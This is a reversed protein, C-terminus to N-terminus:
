GILLKALFSPALLASPPRLEIMVAFLTQAFERDRQGRRVIRDLLAPWRIMDRFLRFLAHNRGIERKLIEAYGALQVKSFNGIELAATAYQAALEGSLMATAIGEGNLPNVLGAAEGAVLINDAVPTVTRMRTRLPYGKPPGVMRAPGLRDRAYRNNKIFDQLAQKLKIGRQRSRNVFTGLGVNARSGTMPFIWAYGPALAADYHMELLEDGGNVNEFYARLAVLDPEGKVLGLRKTFNAHAGDATILLNCELQIDPNRSNRSGTLRITGSRPRTMRTLNVGELLETGATVAQSAIANDLQLRPIVRGYCIDTENPRFHLAEGSPASFLLEKPANFDNKELWEGLGMRELRTLISTVVGDGCVKDRPFTQKDVLGVRIGTRALHYAATSGAPGAGVVVVDFKKM